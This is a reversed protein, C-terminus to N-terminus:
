SNLWDLFAERRAKSLPVSLEEELIIEGSTKLFRQVRKLNVIFSNHVRLFHSSSGCLQEAFEKLTKRTLLDKHEKLVIRTYNSRSELYIIEDTFLAEVGSLTTVLLRRRVLPNQSAFLEQFNFQLTITESRRKEEIRTLTQRLEVHSIPKLLYDIANNKLARLGYEEHATTFVLNFKKWSLGDLLDFGNMGPMDVDLFLIDPKRSEILQIAHRADLCEALVKIEPVFKELLQRLASLGRKEDDVLIASLQSNTTM